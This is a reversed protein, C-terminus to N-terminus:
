AGSFPARHVASDILIQYFCFTQPCQFRSALCEQFQKPTRCVFLALFKGGLTVHYKLYTM